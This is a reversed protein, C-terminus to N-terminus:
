SIFRNGVHEMASSIEDKTMPRYGCDDENLSECLEEITEYQLSMGDTLSIMMVPYSKQDRVSVNYGIKYSVSAMFGFDKSGVPCSQRVVMQGRGKFDSPEFIFKSKM